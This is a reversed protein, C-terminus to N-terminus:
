RTVHQIVHAHRRAVRCGPEGAVVLAHDLTLVIPEKHHCRDTNFTTLRRLNLHCVYMVCSM